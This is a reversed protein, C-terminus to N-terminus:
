RGAVACDIPIPLIRCFLVVKQNVLFSRCDYLADKRHRQGTVARQHNCLRQTVLLDFARGIIQLRVANLLASMRFTQFPWVIPFGLRDGVNKGTLLIQSMCDIEACLLFRILVLMIDLVIGGIPLDDFVRMFGDDILLGEIRHLFQALRDSPDVRCASDIYQRTQDIARVASLLHVIVAASLPCLLM